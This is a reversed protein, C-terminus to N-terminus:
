VQLRKIEKLVKESVDLIKAVDDDTHAASIAAFHYDPIYVGNAVLGTYFAGTTERDSRLIDRVNRLPRETFHVSFISRIGLVQIPFGIEGALKILGSRIREGKSDLSEYFGPKELEKITALGAIASIPNGSYTGSSFIKQGHSTAGEPPSVVKEMIDRRGGYGGAPFGGGIIKGLSRLDPVVGSLSSVGGLGMRFASIVEDFILVIGEKETVERIAQVFSKDAPMGGLFIGGNPDMLVAALERAHKKILAVAAEPNNWPLIITDNLISQPIGASDPISEPNDEPGGFVNGSVLVNDMQGNYSGEFKAYKDKGTFARATRLAIHVAESGSNVFRLLEMGPIHQTIKKALEVAFEGTVQMITGYELREQVAAMVAPPSHGLISPGAGMLLDIYENGDVDWLKSGRAERMYLPYPRRYRAGGTVGGALYHKAEEYMQKSKKTRAIYQKEFFERAKNM